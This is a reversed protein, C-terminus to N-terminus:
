REYSDHDLNQTRKANGQKKFWDIHKDILKRRKFHIERVAETAEKIKEKIERKRKRLNRIEEQERKEKKRMKFTEDAVKKM